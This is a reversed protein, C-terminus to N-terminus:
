PRRRAVERVDVFRVGESDLARELTRGERGPEVRVLLYELPEGLSTTWAPIAGRELVEVDLAATLREVRGSDVGAELGLFLLGCAVDLTRSGTEGEGEGDDEREVTVRCREVLRAESGGQEPPLTDQGYSWEGAAIARSRELAEEAPDIGDSGGGCAVLAVL